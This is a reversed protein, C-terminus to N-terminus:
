FGIETSLYCILGVLLVRFGLRLTRANRGGLGNSAWDPLSVKPEERKAATKASGARWPGRISDRSSSLITHLWHLLQIATDLRCDLASVESDSRLVDDQQPAPLTADRFEFKLVGFTRGPRVTM